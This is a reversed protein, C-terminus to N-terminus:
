SGADGALTLRRTRRVRERSEYRATESDIHPAFEAPTNVLPEVGAGLLRDRVDAINMVAVIEARLRTNSGFVMCM